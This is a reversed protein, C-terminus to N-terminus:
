QARKLRYNGEYDPYLCIMEQSNHIERVDYIVCDSWSVGYLQALRDASIFHLEGDHKSHISMPHLCYKKM